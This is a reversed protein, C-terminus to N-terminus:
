SCGTTTGCTVCHQCTGSRTLTFNGCEQCADGSFGLERAHSARASIGQAQGGGSPLSASMGVRGVGGVGGVGSVQEGVRGQQVEERTAQTQGQAQAQAKAKAQAETTQGSKDANDRGGLVVRLGRSYGLSYSFPSDSSKEEEGHGITDPLMDEPVVQALDYRKLYSVSLERFIYDLVSTATKIFDNGRVAGAPEFRTFTFADVYEELPVGYQLGLSVAIAFNNMLSRFAAGEKHMDIFIEGLRGDKYEGTRLYIKHNAVSAKQTYGPRRTPLTDREARGLTDQALGNQVLGNQVLTTALATVRETQPADIIKETLSIEEEEDELEFLFAANLPQSLKAGDRYLANAKLGSKWSRIYANHCDEATASNPLNITKSISGCVFPQVAAVMDVHSEFSLSRTGNRGCKNACDFVALHEEKLGPAGELSGNGCCYREAVEIEKASFGIRTLLNLATDALDEDSLGLKDRCFDDGLNWRNFVFLISYADKLGAEVAGLAEDDFGKERLSQHNIAPAGELTAHGIVYREIADRQDVEYGLAKLARTVSRTIIKFYGGGALKKQSALAFHPEIGTTDCDMVLGITGTPAICTTQANRFGHEEGIAIADDWAKLATASLEDIICDEGVLPTPLISIDEYGETEGAAARRHNRLVRLMAERNDSFGKFHG